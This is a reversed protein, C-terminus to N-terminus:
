GIGLGDGSVPGAFTFLYGAHVINPDLCKDFDVDFSKPKGTLTAASGFALLLVSALLVVSRIMRLIPPPSAVTQDTATSMSREKFELSSLPEGSAGSLARGAPSQQAPPGSVSRSREANFIRREGRSYTGSGPQSTRVSPQCCASLKRVFESPARDHTRVLAAQEFETGETQIRVLAAEHTVSMRDGSVGLAKWM